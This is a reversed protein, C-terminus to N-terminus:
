IGDSRRENTTGEALTVGEFAPRPWGTLVDNVILEHLRGTM